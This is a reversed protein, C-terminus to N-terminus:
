DKFKKFIQLCSPYLLFIYYEVILNESNVSLIFIYPLKNFLFNANDKNKICFCTVFFSGRKKKEKKKKLNLIFILFRVWPVRLRSNWKQDPAIWFKDWLYITKFFAWRSHTLSLSLSPHDKPPRNSNPTGYCSWYEKDLWNSESTRRDTGKKRWKQKM